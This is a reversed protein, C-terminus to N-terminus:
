SRGEGAICPEVPHGEGVVYDKPEADAVPRLHQVEVVWVEASLPSPWGPPGNTRVRCVRAAAREVLQRIFVGLM